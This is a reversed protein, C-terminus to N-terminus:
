KNSIYEVKDMLWTRNKNRKVKDSDLFLHVRFNDSKYSSGAHVLDGRFVLMEGIDLEITTRPIPKLNKTLDSSLCPLRHSRPWIDLTTGEMICILCGLPIYEDPCTAFSINQEYDCHALQKKCGEISKIVVMDASTLNPYKDKLGHFVSLKWKNLSKSTKNVFKQSRKDDGGKAKNNFIIYGNNGIDVLEDVVGGTLVDGCSIIEYGDIHLEADYQNNLLESAKRKM